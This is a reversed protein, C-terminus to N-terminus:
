QRARTRIVADRSDSARQPPRAKHTRSAMCTDEDADDPLGNSRTTVLVSM